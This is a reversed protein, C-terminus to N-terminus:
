MEFFTKKQAWRGGSNSGQIHYCDWLLNLTRCRRFKNEYSLFNLDFPKERNCFKSYCNELELTILSAQVIGISPEHSTVM